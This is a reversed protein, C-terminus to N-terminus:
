FNLPKVKQQNYIIVLVSCSELALSLGACINLPAQFGPVQLFARRGQGGGVAAAGGSLIGTDRSYVLICPLYLIFLILATSFLIMTSM